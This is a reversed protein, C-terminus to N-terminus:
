YQYECNVAHLDPLLMRPRVTVIRCKPFALATWTRKGCQLEASLPMGASQTRPLVGALNFDCLLPGDGLGHSRGCVFFQVLGAFFVAHSVPRKRGILLLRRQPIEAFNRNEGAPTTVVASIRAVTVRTRFAGPGAAALALASKLMLGSRAFAL